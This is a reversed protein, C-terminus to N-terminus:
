REGGSRLAEEALALCESPSRDRYLASAHRWADLLAEADKGLLSMLEAAPKSASAQADMHVPGPAGSRAAGLVRETVDKGSRQAARWGRGMSLEQVPLRPGEIITLQAENPNWKREGLEIWREHCWPEVIERLQSDTLNFTQANHPFRRLQIHYM